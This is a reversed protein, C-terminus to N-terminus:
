GRRMQEVLAKLEAVRAASAEASAASAEAKAEAAEARADAADARADAADARADAADARADAADARAAVERHTELFEGTVPDYWRLSGDLPKAGVRKVCVCLGLVKSRIGAVGDPLMEKPLPQYKGGRGGCLEFGSLAPDVGPLRPQDEGRPDYLFLEAVGIKAYLDPKERVDRRRSSPSVIELVFDPPKGEEWVVYSERPRNAVGFVVYVDPAPPPNEPNRKADYAPDWYLFQDMGVFVDPRETWHLSLCNFGDVMAVGHRMNQSVPDDECSPLRLEDPGPTWRLAAGNVARPPVGAAPARSSRLSELMAETM